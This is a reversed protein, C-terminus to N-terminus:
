MVHQETIVEKTLSNHTNQKIFLQNKKRFKRTLPQIMRVPIVALVSRFQFQHVHYAHM